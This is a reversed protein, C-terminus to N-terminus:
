AMLLLGTHLLLRQHQLQLGAWQLEDLVVAKHQVSCRLLASLRSPAGLQGLLNDFLEAATKEHCFHDTKGKKERGHKHM